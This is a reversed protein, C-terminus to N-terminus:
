RAQARPAWSGCRSLGRAGLHHKVLSSEAIVPKAGRGSLRRRAGCSSFLGSAPRGAGLVSSRQSSRSATRAARGPNLLANGTGQAVARM